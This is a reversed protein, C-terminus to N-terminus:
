SIIVCASKIKSPGNLAWGRRRLAGGGQQYSPMGVATIFRKMIHVTSHRFRAGLTRRRHPSSNRNTFAGRVAAPARPIGVAYSTSLLPMRECHAAARQAAGTKGNTHARHTNRATQTCTRTHTPPRPAANARPQFTLCRVMRRPAFLTLSQNGLYCRHADCSEATRRRVTAPTYQRVVSDM